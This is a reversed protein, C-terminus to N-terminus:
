ATRDIIGLKRFDDFLGLLYMAAVLMQRTHRSTHRYRDEFAISSPCLIELCDEPTWGWFARRRRHMEVLMVTLAGSRSQPPPRIATMVDDLPDTLRRLTAKTHPPFHGYPRQRNALYALEATEGRSLKAGRDYKAPDVPWSWNM